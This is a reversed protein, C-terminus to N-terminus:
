IVQVLLNSSTASSIQISTKSPLLVLVCTGDYELRNTLHLKQGPMLNLTGLHRLFAPSHDKVARVIAKKGVPVHHLPTVKAAPMQGTKDPIPDGHPDHSPKGLFDDLRDILKESHVHEMQEAIEHVEDWAFGLKEVLFFEWLRHKRIVEVAIRKGKITLDTGQYPIHKVLGKDDLKKLMDTVSSPKMDMATAIANTAVGDPSGLSLIYISKLYNEISINM